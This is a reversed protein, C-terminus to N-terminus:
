VLVGLRETLLERMEESTYYKGAKENEKIRKKLFAELEEKTEIRLNEPLNRKDTTALVSDGRLYGRLKINIFDSMTIGDEKFKKEARKKIAPDVKVHIDATALAMINNEKEEMIVCNVLIIYMIHVYFREWSFRGKPRKGATVRGGKPCM